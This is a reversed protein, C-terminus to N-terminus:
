GIPECNDNDGSKWNDIRTIQGFNTGNYTIKYVSGRYGNVCTSGQTMFSKFTIENDSISVDSRLIDNVTVVSNSNSSIPEIINSQKLDNELNYVEKGMKDFALINVYGCVDTGGDIHAVLVDGHVYLKAWEQFALTKHVQKGNLYLGSLNSLSDWSSSDLGEKYDYSLIQVNQNIGDVTVDNVIYKTLKGACLKKTDKIYNNM